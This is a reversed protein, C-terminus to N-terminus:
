KPTHTLTPTLYPTTQTSVILAANAALTVQVFAKVIANINATPTSQPPPALSAYPTPATTMPAPFAPYASISLSAYWWSAQLPSYNRM